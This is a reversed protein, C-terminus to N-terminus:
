ISKLSHTTQTVGMCELVRALLSDMLDFINMAKTLIEQKKHRKLEPLKDGNINRITVIGYNNKPEDNHAVALLEQKFHARSIDIAKRLPELFETEIEAVYTWISTRNLKDMILLYRLINLGTTINDSNEMLDTEVGNKLLCIEKMILRKLLKGTYWCSPTADSMLEQHMLDKYITSVFSHLGDHKITKLLNAILMYRGKNDFRHIYDRLLFVGHKRNREIDSYVILQALDTCFNQHVKLDLDDATLLVTGLLKKVIIIGKYHVVPKEHKLFQTCFYLCVEFVYNPSYVKPIEPPCKEGIVLYCLMALSLLPCKKENMFIDLSTEEFVNNMNSTNKKPWRIRQEGYRLLFFSDGLIKSLLSVLDEVVQRTYTKVRGSNEIDATDAQQSNLFILPKGMLQLIFCIIVNHKTIETNHFINRPIAGLEKVIPDLFLSITMYLQLIRQVTEDSEILKEETEEISSMFSPLEINNIYLLLTDLSWELSKVKSEKLRMLIVQLVKLLSTFVEDNKNLEMQELIVLLVEQPNCKNAVFKLLNESLTFLKNNNQFTEGNLNAVLTSVIDMCNENLQTEFKENQLLTIAETYKGLRLKDHLLNAFDM